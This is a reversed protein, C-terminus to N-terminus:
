RVPGSDAPQIAAPPPAAPKIADRLLQEPNMYAQASGVLGRFPAHIEINFRFPLNRILRAALSAGPTADRVGQFRVRSVIEGDLRGDLSIALTSYHIAKLADFAMKGMTGLEANSLEGVYALQGGARSQLQGAEIRGGSADFIIPLKGDFTGTASINPFDLQQIFIGADLKAVQFTMRRQGTESFDLTTPDLSLTGGAFPWTADEVKVQEPGLMQYHAIGGAVVVGPNIEAIRVEQHPATVFGLLDTFHINGKIGSVPGFAAALDIRDTHFDGSSTIANATWDIRGKGSVTGVTNAIVGLTLSTLMEPQLKGKTFTLSPVDIRAGGTATALDHTLTINAVPKDYRATRLSASADIRGNVLALKVDSSTLPLYRPAQAQDAVRLAGELRLAGQEVRWTGTAGSLLLPVHRISGAADTFAGEPGHAGITGDLKAIALRTPDDNEAGLAVSAQEATFNTSGTLNLKAAHLALPTGGTQGTLTVDNAAIAMTMSGNARRVLLPQGCVTLTGPDLTLAAITVRTFGIPTCGEGVRLEDSRALTAAIPLTLGEISGSGLPGTMTATTAFRTSGAAATIKLPTLALRAGDAAYPVMRVLATVTGATRASLGFSPLANGSAHGDITWGQAERSGSGNFTVQDRGAAMTAQDIRVSQRTGSGAYALQAQVNAGALIAAISKGIRAAIPGIPTGTAAQTGSTVSTVLDRRAVVHSLGIAGDFHRETTTLRWGGAISAGDARAMATQVGALKLEARGHADKTKGAFSVTGSTAGFGISGAHGAFGALTIHGDAGDLEPTLTLDTQVTGTGITLAQPPCHAGAITVPGLLHPSRDAIGIAFKAGAHDITCGGYALAPADVIAQGAYDRALNGSGTLSAGIAGVPTALAIKTDSVTVNLDPLAPGSSSQPLLRDISGLSLQGNAIRGALRVGDAEVSALVPGTLGYRWSLDVRRAILDPHAPDGLRLDEIRQTFPTLKTIRYSAPVRASALHENVLHTAIRQRGFWLALLLLLLFILTARGVTRRHRRWRPPDDASATL